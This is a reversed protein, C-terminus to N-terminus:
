GLRELVKDLKTDMSSVKTDLGDVKSDLGSVKTDLGDVKTDLGDVKTDLGDVKTALGDFRAEIDDLRVGHRTLTVGIEAVGADLEDLRNAQRMQVGSVESVAHRVGAIAVTHEQQTKEVRDLMSYIANVDNSLQRVKRTVDPETM